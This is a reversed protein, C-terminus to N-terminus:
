VLLPELKKMVTEVSLQNIASSHLVTVHPGPPHWILPNSPGFLALTPIGLMAALHTLGTDNGIYCRCQLLQQAVAMLPADVLFECERVPFDSHLLTRLVSLREEEAPGALVLVAKDRQGLRYIVEAFREVPWCKQVGGSGPHVAVSGTQSVQQRVGPLALYMSRLPKQVTLWSTRALYTTIHVSEANSVDPRGPAVIVQQIGAARLNNEVVGDPDSLWCIVLQTRQLIAKLRKDRVRGSNVSLFLQSWCVAQYDHVEDVIGTALAM